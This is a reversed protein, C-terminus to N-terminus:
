IEQLSIKINDRFVQGTLLQGSKLVQWKDEHNTKESTVVLCASDALYSMRFYPQDKLCLSLKSEDESDYKCYAYLREGDSFLVNLGIYPRDHDCKERRRQWLVSLVKKFREIAEQFSAGKTMEKAVYWFYVESDNLGRVRGKWEGLREAVEDPINIAGNHVFIYKEYSFPQSNEISILQERLLGKPNSVRRIHALVVRSSAIQAASAFKEYERYVPKESKIVKPVGEVYFGIGWGDSQLRSPDVRSQVYISCPDELLYKRANSAKVSLMGFLRCM